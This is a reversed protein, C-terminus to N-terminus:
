SSGGGMLFDVTPQVGSLALAHSSHLADDTAVADRQAGTPAGHLRALKNDFVISPMACKHAPVKTAMLNSDMNTDFCRAYDASSTHRKLTHQDVTM